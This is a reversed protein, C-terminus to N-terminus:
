TTWHIASSADAANIIEWGGSTISLLKVNSESIVKQDM